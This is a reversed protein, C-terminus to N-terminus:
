ALQSKGNRVFSPKVVQVTVWKKRMEVEVTDGVNAPVRAMAIAHGLTPSFTGSTIVGEGAECRIAQGARLVGKDTMVLGVLKQTGQQKQQELSARGMFDRDAPEWTITWGMNAALPSTNEDMDQGYLNM